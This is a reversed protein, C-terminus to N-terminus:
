RAHGSPHSVSPGGSTAHPSPEPFPPQPVGPSPSGSLSSGFTVLGMLESVDDLRELNRILEISREIQPLSLFGRVMVEYRAHSEEQSLPNEPGGKIADTTKTYTSGDKLTVTVPLSWPASRGGAWDERVFVRVKKRAERYQPDVAGEDTFPKVYPLEVKRDVLAAGLAQEMSFKAQAGNQPDSIKVLKPIWTPVDVQVSVVQDYHIDHEEIVALLADLARHIFFCCGYKKIFLGPSNMVWPNGLDRGLSELNYGKGGSSYLDAFGGVGEIAEPDATIGGKALLAATVGNRCGIGTELLHTMTGTQRQLGGCQSIAIGFANKIQDAPLQLMKCTTAAAGLTGFTPISSFGRDFTGPCRMGLKTQVELGIMVGELIARGSLRFKDAVPFAVPINTMPNSGTYLGISELEQCHATTGNVFVANSLSTRFGGGIVGAEPTGGSDQVYQMLMRSVPEGVGAIMRGLSDLIAYKTISIADEPFDRFGKEVIFEAVESTAGM